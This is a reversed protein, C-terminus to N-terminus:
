FRRNFRNNYVRYQSTTSPPKVEIPETVKDPEAKDILKSGNVEHLRMEKLRAIRRDLVTAFDNESIQATVQLRPLEYNL